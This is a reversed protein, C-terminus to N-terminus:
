SKMATRACNREREAIAIVVRDLVNLNGADEGAPVAAMQRVALARNVVGHSHLALPSKGPHM